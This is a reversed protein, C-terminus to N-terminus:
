RKRFTGTEVAQAAPETKRPTACHHIGQSPNRLSGFISFQNIFFNEQLGPANWTDFPWRKDCSLMSRSSPIAASQSPVYSLRVSYNSEVEQFEGSDQLQSTLRRITEHSERLKQVSFEDVRLEQARKMEGMEHISRTQTDRLVKEKM